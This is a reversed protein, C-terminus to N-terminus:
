LQLEMNIILQTRAGERGCTNVVMKIVIYNSCGCTSEAPAPTGTDCISSGTSCCLRQTKRAPSPAVRTIREREREREREGEGGREGEGEREGERERGKGRERVSESESVRGGERGGERM